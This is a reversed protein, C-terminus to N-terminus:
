RDKQVRKRARDGFPGVADLPQQRVVDGAVTTFVLVGSKNQVKIETGTPRLLVLRWGSEGEAKRYVYVADLRVGSGYDALLVFVESKGSVYKSSRVYGVREKVWNLIANESPARWVIEGVGIETDALCCVPSVCWLVSLLILRAPM